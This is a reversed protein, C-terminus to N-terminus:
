RTNWVSVYGYERFSAGIEKRLPYSGRRLLYKPRATFIALPMVFPTLSNKRVSALMLQARALM